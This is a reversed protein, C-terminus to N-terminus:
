EVAGYAATWFDTFVRPPAPSDMLRQTFLIGVVGEAPDTYATTGLGGTWGFRGPTHYIEDRRIDVALGLGWSSHTHFFLEAGARQEATLHDATMLTVAARPLIRARGLTGGNLLMRCFAFYDDATSVLGGGGAEFPPESLWESQEVGDYVALTNTGPDLVYCGPLRDLKRGPVHFATDKMGLPEFIRERM